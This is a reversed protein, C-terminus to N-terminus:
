KQIAIRTRNTLFFLGFLAFFIFHLAYGEAIVFYDALGHVIVTRKSKEIVSPLVTFVPWDSADGNPFVDTHAVCEKWNVDLPAHIAM